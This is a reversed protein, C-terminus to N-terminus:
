QIATRDNDCAPPTAPRSLPSGAPLVYLVTLRLPKRTRNRATHAHEPGAPERFIRGPRYTVPVCDLGPHSLASGTVLVLLMGDHFHWGSDGGPDVVTQRVIFERGALRFRLLIRSRTGVAPAPNPRFQPLGPRPVAM